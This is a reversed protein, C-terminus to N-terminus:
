GKRSPPFLGKSRPLDAPKATAARQRLGVDPQFPLAGARHGSVNKRWAHRRLYFGFILLGGIDANEGILLALFRV